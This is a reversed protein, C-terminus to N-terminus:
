PCMCVTCVSPKNNYSQPLSASPVSLILLEESHRNVLVNEEPFLFDFFFSKVLAAKLRAGLDPCKGSIKSRPHKHTFHSPTSMHFVSSGFMYFVDFQFSLLNLSSKIIFPLEPTLTSNFFFM